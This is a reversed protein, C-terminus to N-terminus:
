QEFFGFREPDVFADIEARIRRREQREWEAQHSRDNRAGLELDALIGDLVKHHTALDEYRGVGSPQNTAM